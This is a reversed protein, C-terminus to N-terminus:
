TVKSLVTARGRGGRAFLAQCKHPTPPPHPADRDGAGGGRRTRKSGAGATQLNRSNTLPTHTRASVGREADRRWPSLATARSSPSPGGTAPHPPQCPPMKVRVCVSGGDRRPAGLSSSPAPAAGSRIPHSYLRRSHAPTRRRRAPPSPPPTSRHDDDGGLSQPQRHPRSSLPPPPRVPPAVDVGGSLWGKPPTHAASSGTPPRGARPAGATAVADVGRTWSQCRPPTLCPPRPWVGVCPSARRSWGGRGGSRAKQAVSAM